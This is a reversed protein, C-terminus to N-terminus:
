KNETAFIQVKSIRDNLQIGKLIGYSSIYKIETTVVIKDNELKRIYNISKYNKILDQQLDQYIDFMKKRDSLYNIVQDVTCGIKKSIYDISKWIKYDKSYEIIYPKLKLIENYLAEDIEDSDRYILKKKTNYDKNYLIIDFAYLFGNIDYNYVGLEKKLDSIKKM